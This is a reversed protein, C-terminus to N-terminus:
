RNLTARVLPHDSVMVGDHEVRQSSFLAQANESSYIWDIHHQQGRVGDLEQLDSLIPASPDQANLDGGGVVLDGPRISQHLQDVLIRAADSRQQATYEGTLNHTNWITAPQGGPLEVNLVQLNRPEDQGGHGSVWEKLTNFGEGPQQGTIFTVSQDQVQIDPRLLILNGQVATTQAYYGQMHLSEALEGADSPAVEQLLIVDANETQLQDIMTDLQPRAGTSDQSLGHHLNWSVVKLDKADGMPASQSPAGIVLNQQNNWSDLAGSLQFPAELYRWATAGQTATHLSVCAQGREWGVIQQQEQCVPLHAAAHTLGTAMGALTGLGLMGYTVIKRGRHRTRGGEAAPEEPAAPPPPPPKPTPKSALPSCGALRSLM